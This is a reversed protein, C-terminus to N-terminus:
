LIGAKNGFVAALANWNAIKCGDTQSFTADVATGRVKGTVYAVSPGAYQAPCKQNAVTSPMFLAIGAAEVAACAAAPDQVTSGAQPTAGLCNLTFSRAASTPSDTIRITLATEGTGATPDVGTATPTSTSAPPPTPTVSHLAPPETGPFSSIAPGGPIPSCGAMALAVAVIGASSLLGTRRRGYRVDRTNM